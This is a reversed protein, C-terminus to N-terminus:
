KDKNHSTVSSLELVMKCKRCLSRGHQSQRLAMDDKRNQLKCKRCVTDVCNICITLGDGRSQKLIVQNESRCCNQCVANVCMVCIKRHENGEIKKFDSNTTMFPQLYEEDIEGCSFCKEEKMNKEDTIRRISEKRTEEYEGESSEDDSFDDGMSDNVGDDTGASRPRVLGPSVKSFVLSARYTRIFALTFLFVLSIILLYPGNPSINQSFVLLGTLVILLITYIFLYHVARPLKLLLAVTYIIYKQVYLLIERKQIISWQNVGGPSPNVYSLIYAKEISHQHYELMNKYSVFFHRSGM